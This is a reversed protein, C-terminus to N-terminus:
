VTASQVFVNCWYEGGGPDSYNGMIASAALPSSLMVAALVLRFLFSCQRM